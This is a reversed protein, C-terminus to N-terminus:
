KTITSRGGEPMSRGTLAGSSFGSSSRSSQYSGASAEAGLSGPKVNMADYTRVVQDTIDISPSAWLLSGKELVMTYGDKHAVQRVVTALDHVISGTIENDRQRLEDRSNKYNDQFDRLKSNYKDVLNQRQDPQMLAGKQQLENKLTQVERQQSELQGQLRQVRVRFEAKAKKGANCDNLARQIDVYALRVEAHATAAGLLALTMVMMVGFTFRQRM